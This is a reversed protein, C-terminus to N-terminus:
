EVEIRQGTELSIWCNVTVLGLKVLKAVAQANSCSDTKKHVSSIYNQTMGKSIGLQYAIFEVTLGESILQMVEIERPYLHIETM